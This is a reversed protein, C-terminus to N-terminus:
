TQEANKSKGSRSEPKCRSVCLFTESAPGPCNAAHRSPARRDPAPRPSRRHPSPHGGALLGLLTGCTVGLGDAVVDGLEVARGPSFHQGAELLVGLFFMSLSARIAYHRNDFAVIPLLALALYAAFHEFKDSIHLRSTCSGIATMVPSGAPSLSGIVVCAILAGWLFLLLTHFRGAPQPSTISVRTM